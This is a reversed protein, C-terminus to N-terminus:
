ARAVRRGHAVLDRALEVLDSALDVPRRYRQGGELCVLIARVRAGAADLASDAAKPADGSRAATAVMGGIQRRQEAAGQSPALM